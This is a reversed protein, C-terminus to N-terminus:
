RAKLPNLAEALAQRHEGSEVVEGGRVLAVNPSLVRAGCRTEHAAKM